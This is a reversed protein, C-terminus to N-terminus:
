PRLFHGTVLKPTKILQQGATATRTKLKATSIRPPLSFLSAAIHRRSGDVLNNKMTTSTRRISSCCCGYRGRITESIAGESSRKKRKINKGDISTYIRKYVKV